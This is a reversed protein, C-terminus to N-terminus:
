LTEQTPAHAPQNPLATTNPNGLQLREPAEDDSHISNALDTVSITARVFVFVAKLKGARSANSAQRRPRNMTSIRRRISGIGSGLGGRAASGPTAAEDPSTVRLTKPRPKSQKPPVVAGAQVQIEELFSERENAFKRLAQEFDEDSLSSTSDIGVGKITTSSRNSPTPKFEIPGIVSGISKRAEWSYRHSIRASGDPNPSAPTEPRISLERLTDTELAVDEDITEEVPPPSSVRNLREDYIQTSEIGAIFFHDALPVSSADAASPSPAPAM